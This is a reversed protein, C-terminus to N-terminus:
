RHALLNSAFAICTTMYTCYVVIGNNIYIASALALDPLAKDHLAPQYIIYTPYSYLLAPKPHQVTHQIILSFIIDSLSIEGTWYLYFMNFQKIYILYLVHVKNNGIELNLGRFKCLRAHRLLPNSVCLPKAPQTGIRLAIKM